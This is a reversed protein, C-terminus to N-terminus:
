GADEADAASNASNSETMVEGCQLRHAPGDPSASHISRLKQCAPVWVRQGIAASCM